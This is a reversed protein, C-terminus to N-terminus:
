IKTEFGTELKQGDKDVYFLKCIQKKENYDMNLYIIKIVSNKKDFNLKSEIQRFILDVEPTESIKAIKTNENFQMKLEDNEYNALFVCKELIAGTQKKYGQKLIAAALNM